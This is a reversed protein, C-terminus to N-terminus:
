PSHLLETLLDAAARATKDGPLFFDVTQAILPAFEDPSQGGLSLVFRRGPHDTRLSGLLRTLAPELRPAHVIVLDPREERLYRTLHEVTGISRVAWERSRLEEVLAPEDMMDLEYYVVHPRRDPFPSAIAPRFGGTVSSLDALPLRLVLATGEGPRSRVGLHGGHSEAFLHANYLGLGSGRHADKTTFFPDFIRPLNRLAIGTGNDAFTLEVSPLKVPPAPPYLGAAPADGPALRRVSVRIEGPGHLADRANMAFNILTQRFGVEDLHVPLDIPEPIDALLVTDRPLIVRLLDIQERLLRDLPFYSREGANDRNLDIIRRVLSQAQSASDKILGLGEHLPHREGLSNHYLEALSYIGTMVNSFDHLLGCTLTSLSEKWARCSLRHEAVKQRSIDLWVGEYGLLPGGRTRVPSRVDLVYVPAGTQPNLIRYVLSFAGEADAHRTLEQHFSSRDGEHILDLFTNPDHALTASPLGTLAEFGPAIFSFSFDARQSFVVGPLHCLYHQLRNEAARHRLFLQAFTRPNSMLETVGREALLAPPALEPSLTVNMMDGARLRHVALGLGTRGGPSEPLFITTEAGFLKEPLLRTWTPEIAALV